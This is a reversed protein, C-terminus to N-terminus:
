VRARARGARPPPRLGRGDARARVRWTPFSGRLHARTGAAGSGRVM